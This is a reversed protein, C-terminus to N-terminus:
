AARGGLVTPATVPAGANAFGGLVTGQRGGSTGKGRIRRIADAIPGYTGGYGDVGSGGGAGDGSGGDSSGYPFWFPNSGGEGGRVKVKEGFIDFENDSLVGGGVDHRTIGYQNFLADALGLFRDNGANGANSNQWKAIFGLVDDKTANKFTEATTTPFGAPNPGPTFSQGAPLTHTGLVTPTSPTPAGRLTLGGSPRRVNRGGLVTNLSTAYFPYDAV